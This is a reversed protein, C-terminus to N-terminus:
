PRVSTGSDTRQLPQDAPPETLHTSCKKWVLWGLWFLLWLVLCGAILCFPFFLFILGSERGSNVFLVHYYALTSVVAVMGNIALACWAVARSRAVLVLGAAMLYPSAVLCCTLIGFTSSLLHRDAGGLLCWLPFGGALGLLLWSAYRLLNVLKM